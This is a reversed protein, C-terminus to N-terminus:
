RSVEDRPFFVIVKNIVTHNRRRFPKAGPLHFKSKPSDKYAMLQTLVGKNNDAIQKLKRYKVEIPISKIYVNNVFIDVRIDPKNKKNSTYLPHLNSTDNSDSKLTSNFHINVTMQENIMEIHTEEKLVDIE